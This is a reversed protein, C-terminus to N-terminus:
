FSYAINLEIIRPEMIAPFTSDPTPVLFSPGSRKVVQMVTNGNLLNFINARLDVRHRRGVSLRKQVRLNILNRNPLRRAGIPEVRLVQTPITTGGRFQVQRAWPEGSRHEYNAAVLVEYAFQYSGAVKGTWEWTNDAAYIESNPDKDALNVTSGQETPDLGNIYQINRKTASYSANFQWKNSLRKSAAIEFSTFTPNVTDDNSLTFLEFARGRLSTPYEYYTFSWGPDDATGAVGDLGPDPRTIPITYAEPPRLLNIRRYPKTARSYIGTGRIGFGPMVEREISASVEDQYPEEENPNPITNTGGSQSLFDSGNLDLNVEGPDYDRNRNLDRWRYTITTRINPDAAGVEGPYRMHAFRGWGVKAVTRGNGTIDYAAHLRPQVPNWTNFTIQDWCSAPAFDVADRCGTPVFGPNHAYRMGLNLTLRRAITWSDKVYLGLYHSVDWPFTPSNWARLQDAAGNNFVLQYNGKDGRDGFYTSNVSDIYEAGGKFEHNGYFLDPRYWSISGKQQYSREQSKRGTSAFEGGTVGTFTDTWSPGTPSGPYPGNGNGTYDVHYNWYGTQASM